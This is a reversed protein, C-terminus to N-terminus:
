QCKQTHRRLAVKGQLHLSSRHSLADMHALWVFAQWGPQLNARMGAWWSLIPASVLIDTKQFEELIQTYPMTPTIDITSCESVWEGEPKWGRCRDVIEDINVFRRSKWRVLFTVQMKLPPNLLLAQM